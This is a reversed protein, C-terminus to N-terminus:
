SEAPRRDVKSSRTPRIAPDPEEQLGRRLGVLGVVAAVAMAIAMGFLVSRTAYAFDLRVFHPISSASGSGGQSQSIADAEAAAEARRCARPCRALVDPALADRHGARDGPHGPGPQRRLEAGDPHHRHGRRLLAPLGPQGRRHQGSGLMFGMGAGALIIYWQQTHFSLQTVKGAWLCFGVRPLCAASCWRASPGAGTWCGAASRPPSSSASSSTSCSCAPRPPRSAWPSRPTSAPSSSCRSSRWCRCGSCWTRSSSPGSGSSACRCSRPTPGCSWSTSSWWCSWAPRSACDSPRTAGDGSALVAPLRVRETGRGLAILVLGRYDMRAPQYSTDAQLHRHAGPRHDAVPINVWFIARWTWQTLYGGLIPGVATLGGAIGFFAALAKGRERLPFTQVVIALAAPFMIAGGAGPRGPLDRDMGRGPEGKPTLGCMTSAGAFIIVGLVVMKPPGVRTPWGAASPSSPPWRCCTPTSRGSSGPPQEPGTRKPDRPRRDLRHDSRHLDDLRRLDDGGPDPEEVPGRVPRAPWARRGRHWQPGGGGPRDSYATAEALPSAM